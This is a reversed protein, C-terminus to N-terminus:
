ARAEPALVMATNKSEDWLEEEWNPDNKRGALYAEFEPNVVNDGDDEDEDDEDDEDEDEDDEDEDEKDEDVEDEDEDEDNM